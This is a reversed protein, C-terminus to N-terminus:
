GAMSANLYVRARNLHAIKHMKRNMGGGANRVIKSSKGCSVRGPCTIKLHIRLGSNGNLAHPCYNQALSLAERRLQLGNIKNPKTRPCFGM